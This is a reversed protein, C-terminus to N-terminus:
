HPYSISTDSFAGLNLYKRNKYSLDIKVLKSAIFRFDLSKTHQNAFYALWLTFVM